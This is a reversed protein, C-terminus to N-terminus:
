GIGPTGDINRGLGIDNVVQQRVIGEKDILFTVRLAVADTSLMRYNSAYLRYRMLRSAPGIRRLGEEPRAGEAWRAGTSRSSGSRPRLMMRLWNPLLGGVLFHPLLGM